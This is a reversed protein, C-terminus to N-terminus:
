EEYPHQRVTDLTTQIIKMPSVDADPHRAAVDRALEQLYKYYQPDGTENYLQGLQAMRKLKSQMHNNAVWTMTIGLAGLLLGITTLVGENLNDKKTHQRAANMATDIIFQANIRHDNKIRSYDRAENTLRAYADPDGTEEYDNALRAIKMLKDREANLIKHGLVGVVVGILIAGAGAALMSECMEPVRDDAVADQREWGAIWARALDGYFYPNAKRSKGNQRARAGAEEAQEM